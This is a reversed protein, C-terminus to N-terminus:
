SPRLPHPYTYATYGPKAATSDTSFFYHTNLRIYDSVAKPSGDCADGAPRYDELTPSFTAGGSNSWIYLPEADGRYGLNADTTGSGTVYGLGIQRPYPPGDSGHKSYTSTSNGWCAYGLTGIGSSANNRRLALVTFKIEPKNNWDQSTINDFTNSYIVGTGGRLFLFANQNAISSPSEGDQGNDFIGLTHYLEFHRIGSDSTEQGHSGMQSNDYINYRWVSRSNDDIDSLSQTFGSFYNDEIYINATGNTDATGMTSVTRWSSDTPNPNKLSIGQGTCENQAPAAHKWGFGCDFGNDYIVGRNVTSEIARGSFTGTQFRNGYVLTPKGSAGGTNIQIHDGSGSGMIFHIGTIEASRTTPETVTILDGSGANHTIQTSGDRKFNWVKFTGSGGTTTIDLVLTTGNWSTVTGCMFDAAIYKVQACIAESETFGDPATSSRVIFSKSGMGIALSTTSSGTLRGGSAGRLCIGKSVTVGSSWAFSGAPITVIDGTSAANIKSQVDPASGDTARTMGTCTSALSGVRFRVGTSQLGSQNVVVSGTTTSPVTVTISLASWNTVTATVGNFTVTGSGQTAAFGSGTITVSTGATGLTPNLKAITPMAPNADLTVNAPNGPGQSCSSNASSVILLVSMPAVNRWFNWLSAPCEGLASFM